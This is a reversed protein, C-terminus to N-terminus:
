YLNRESLVKKVYHASLGVILGIYKFPVGKRYYWEIDDGISEDIALPKPGTKQKTRVTLTEM